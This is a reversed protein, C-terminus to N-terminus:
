GVLFGSRPRAWWYTADNHNPHGYYSVYCVSASSGSAVSRLWWTVRGGANRMSTQAFIPFQCDMGVSWGPTGWVRQGFVETESLSWVKGLDVWQWNTSDNLPGDKSYRTEVAARRMMLVDSVSSPLAPLLDNAEWSHLNSALYPSNQEATGQNTSTTNWALYSGNNVKPGSVEWPVNPIFVIHHGMAHGDDGCGYYPDIAAIQMNRKQAPINDGKTTTLPIFDGIRLGDFNAAKARSQIWAWPDGKAKIEASFVSTLDRGSPKGILMLRDLNEADKVSAISSRGVADSLRYDTGKINITDIEAM